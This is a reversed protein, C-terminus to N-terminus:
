KLLLDKVIIKFKKVMKPCKLQFEFSALINRDECAAIPAYDPDIEEDVGNGTDTEAEGHADKEGFGVGGGHNGADEPEQGVSGECNGGLIVVAHGGAGFPAKADKGVAAHGDSELDHHTM